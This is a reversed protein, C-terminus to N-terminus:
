FCVGSLVLFVEHHLVKRHKATGFFEKEPFTACSKPLLTEPKIKKPSHENSSVDSNSNNSQYAHM